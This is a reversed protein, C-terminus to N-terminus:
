SNWCVREFGLMDAPLILSIFYFLVGEFKGNVMRCHDNPNWLVWQSIPRIRFNAAFHNRPASPRSMGPRAVIGAVSHDTERQLLRLPWWHWMLKNRRLGLRPMGALRECSWLMGIGVSCRRTLYAICLM